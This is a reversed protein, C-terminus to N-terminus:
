VPIPPFPQMKTQENQLAIDTIDSPIRQISHLANDPYGSKTPIVRDMINCEM